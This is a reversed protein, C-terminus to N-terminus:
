VYTVEVPGVNRFELEGLMSDGGAQGKEKLETQPAHLAGVNGLPM